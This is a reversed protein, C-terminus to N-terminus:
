EPIMQLYEAASRTPAPCRRCTSSISKPTRPAVLYWNATMSPAELNMKGYSADGGLCPALGVQRNARRRGSAAGAARQAQRM